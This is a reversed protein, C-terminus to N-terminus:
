HTDLWLDYPVFDCSACFYDLLTTKRKQIQKQKNRIKEFASESEELKKGLAKDEQEQKKQEVEIRKEEELRALYFKHAGHGKRIFNKTFSVTKCQPLTGKVLGPIDSKTYGLASLGNEIKMALMYEKLTDALIKGADQKKANKIDTGLLEAAELHREPCSPSTFLFVAPSSMVVSLGHPIIPHDERVLAALFGCTEYSEYGHKGLGRSSQM